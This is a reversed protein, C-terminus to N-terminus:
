SWENVVSCKGQELTEKLKKWRSSANVVVVDTNKDFTLVIESALNIKIYVEKYPGWRM